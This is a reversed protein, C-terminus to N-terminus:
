KLPAPKEPAAKKGIALEAGIREIEKALSKRNERAQEHDPRIKLVATFDALARPRDGTARRLEGRANLVDTMTPDLKLAADYDLLARAPQQSDALAKARLLLAAIKPRRETKDNDILATCDAAAPDACVSPDIVPEPAAIRPQAAPTVEAAVACVSTLSLCSVLVIQPITRM